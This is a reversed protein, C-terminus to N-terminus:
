IVACRGALRKKLKETLSQRTHIVSGDTCRRFVSSGLEHAGALTFMASAFYMDDLYDPKLASYKEPLEFSYDWIVPANQAVTPAVASLIVADEPCHLDRMLPAPALILDANKLPEIGKAIGIVAGKEELLRDAERLYLRPNKTIVTVHDNEEVLYSCLGTYEGDDDILVVGAGTTEPDRLLYLAANECMRRSLEDSAFRRYGRECPLEVGERCLIRGRSSGIFRDVSTWNIQGRFREYTISKLVVSDCYRHEVRIRNRRLLNLIAGPGSVSRDEPHFATIM